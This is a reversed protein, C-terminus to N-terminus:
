ASRDRRQNSELKARSERAIRVRSESNGNSKKVQNNVQNPRVMCPLGRIPRPRPCLGYSIFDKKWKRFEELRQRKFAEVTGASVVDEIAMNWRNVVRQSFFHKRIDLRFSEKVMSRQIDGYNTRESSDARFFSNWISHCVTM